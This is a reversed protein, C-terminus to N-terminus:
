GQPRSPKSPNPPEPLPMWHTCPFPKHTGAGGVAVVEGDPNVRAMRVKRWVNPRTDNALFWEGDKPATEIPRWEMEDRRVQRPLKGAMREVCFMGSVIQSTCELESFRGSGSCIASVANLRYIYLAGQLANCDSVNPISRKCRLHRSNSGRVVWWEKEKLIFSKRLKRM